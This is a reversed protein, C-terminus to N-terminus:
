LVPSILPQGAFHAALNDRVLRGMAKRTEVTGSAHHPQLLVNDLALFRPNLKPEGEFVDLAASGLVKSELADLLADEDINSARSINILMGDEGLAAIVESNVIHRTAASAALTVFLFDSRRALAVPDALFEWDAAFDKPAVDSYAIDMGFGALRKAVEYGIRGLGLVGARRGWVRRKLPYLGKAAWSGDRVWREAGIMGRSLCLMMAIGLDAVDNTLVDPTNTVRVGRERCAVLDVADFGVGYVSVLELSPCAEIMARNAGLEGRTAIGRVLPGVEALFAPKDDAAFYRHVTFAENLPEEDWAPYPGVQLIHPRQM